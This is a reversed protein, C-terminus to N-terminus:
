IWIRLWAREGLELGVYWVCDGCIGWSLMHLIFKDGEGGGVMDREEGTDKKEKYPWVWPM